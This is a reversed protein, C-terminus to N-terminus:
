CCHLLRKRRRPSPCDGPPTCPRMHGHHLPPCPTNTHVHQPGTPPAHKHILEGGGSGQRCLCSQGGRRDLHADLVTDCRVNGVQWSDPHPAEQAGLTPPLTSPIENVM